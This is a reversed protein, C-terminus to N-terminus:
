QRLLRSPECVGFNFSYGPLCEQCALHPALMKCGTPVNYCMNRIKQQNAWCVALCENNALNLTQGQPCTKKSCGGASDLQYQSSICGTCRGASDM